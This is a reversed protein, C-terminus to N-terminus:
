CSHWKTSNISLRPQDTEGIVLIEYTSEVERRFWKKNIIIARECEESWRDKRWYLNDLLFFDIYYGGFGKMPLFM